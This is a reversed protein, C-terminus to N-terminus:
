WHSITKAYEDNVLYADKEDLETVFGVEIAYKLIQDANLEFNFAPAQWKFLENKNIVRSM